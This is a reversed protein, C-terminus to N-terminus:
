IFAFFPWTPNVLVTETELNQTNQIQTLFAKNKSTASLQCQLRKMM